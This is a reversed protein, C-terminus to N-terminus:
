ATYKFEVFLQNATLTGKWPAGYSWGDSNTYVYDPGEFTGGSFYRYGINASLHSSVPQFNLGVSGQWAFSTRTTENGISTTSGINTASLPVIGVTHFNNVKNYGAGIGGSIFPMVNLSWPATYPTNNHLIINALVSKNNLTFFRNRVSGTFGPTGSAGTQFIQYDMDENNFYSVSLDIYPHVQKGIAFSYFGEDSLDGDYGQSANDWFGPDPNVIGSKDTWSYGTGISVFWPMPQAIEGMTGAVAPLSAICCFAFVHKKM